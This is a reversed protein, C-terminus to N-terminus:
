DGGRGVEQVSPETSALGARVGVVPIRASSEKSALGLLLLRDVTLNLNTHVLNSVGDAALRAVEFSRLRLRQGGLVTGVTFRVTYEPGIQYSVQEGERASLRVEGKVEYRNTRLLQMQVLENRLAVPLARPDQEPEESQRVTADLVYLDLQISMPPHDFATLEHRLTEIVSARDRLVLTNTDSRVEVSGEASLLSEIFPLAESAPQHELDHVLHALSELRVGGRLMAEQDQAWVAGVVLWCVTLPALFRIRRLRCV